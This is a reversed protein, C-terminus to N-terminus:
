DNKRDKSGEKIQDSYCNSKWQSYEREKREGDPAAVTEEKHAFHPDSIM